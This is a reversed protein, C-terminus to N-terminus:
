NTLPNKFFLIPDPRSIDTGAKPPFYASGRRRRSQTDLNLHASDRNKINSM